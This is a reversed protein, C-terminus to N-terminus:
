GATLLDPPPIASPMLVGDQLHHIVLPMCPAQCWRHGPAWHVQPQALLYTDLGISPYLHEYGVKLKQKNTSMTEPLGAKSATIIRAKKNRSPSPLAVAVDYDFEDGRSASARVRRRSGGGSQAAAVASTDPVIVTVGGTGGAPCQPTLSLTHQLQEQKIGSHQLTSTEEQKLHLHAPPPLELMTMFKAGGIAPYVDVICQQLFQHEEAAAAPAKNTSAKPLIPPKVPQLTLRMFCGATSATAAAATHQQPDDLPTVKLQHFTIAKIKCIEEGQFPRQQMQDDRHSPSFSDVDAAAAIIWVPPSFQLDVGYAAYFSTVAAQHQIYRHHM